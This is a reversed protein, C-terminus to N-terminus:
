GSRAGESVSVADVARVLSLVYSCLRQEIEASTRAEKLLIPLPIVADIVDRAGGVRQVSIPSVETPLDLGAVAASIQGQIKSLAGSNRPTVRVLLMNRGPSLLILEAASKSNSRLYLQCVSGAGVNWGLERLHSRTLQWLKAFNQRNRIKIQADPDELDGIEPHPPTYGLHEFGERLWRATDSTAAQLPEYLDSWLFHERVAPKVYRPHGLIEAAPPSWSSRFYAVGDVRLELYRKLQRLPEDPSTENMGLTEPADIKHECAIIHKDQLTLVLDPRCGSGPFGRQTDVHAIEPTRWGRSEAYKELVVGAYARAFNQDLVLAAAIFETLHNEQSTLRLTSLFLNM